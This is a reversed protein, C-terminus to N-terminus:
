RASVRCHLSPEIGASLVTVLKTRNRKLIQYVSDPAYGVLRGAERTMAQFRQGKDSLILIDGEVLHDVSNPQLDVLNFEIPPIPPDQPPWEPPPNIGPPPDNPPRKPM